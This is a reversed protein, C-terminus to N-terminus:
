LVSDHCNTAIIYSGIEIVKFCKAISIAHLIIASITLLPMSESGLERATTPMTGPTMMITNWSSILELASILSGKLDEEADESSESGIKQDLELQTM